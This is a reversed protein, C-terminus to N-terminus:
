PASARPPRACAAVLLWLALFGALAAAIRKPWHVTKDNVALLHITMPKGLETQLLQTFAHRLGRTPLNVRIPQVKALGLEQAQQLKTWQAEAASADYQLQLPQAGPPPPQPGAPQQAANSLSFANQALILNSGQARRLQEELQRAQPDGSEVFNGKARARNYDAMAERVKGSSLKQQASALESKLQKALVAKNESEKRSYDFLSFSAAEAVGAAARTMTGGFDSYRYDPPLFVEWRTNKLPLDLRPSVLDVPGRNQPFRNTGAYTLEVTLPADDSGSRQLPLLLKGERLSPRVAEGAVFASWVKAGPPLAVELHQRGHNRIALSMETMMQGDDAVVTTLDLREVLAQLVEAQEFRRAELALTYEPRLYRYALVTAEDSRGAWPPLDRTDLPKLEAASQETVQLPPRAVIALIGTEREVGAASIGRLDLRNTGAPRPLEWTVTLTHPGRIKSQFEVKWIEGAQDRRRINAGSIEVNRFAAPIKLRLEKVPANQIEYRALARGSVLSETLTLTNVIEARVWPDVPETAVALKWAAAPQPEAALFKYALVSGAGAPDSAAGPAAPVETLGDIASPGIAMGPEASVSVFGSLKQAGLPHVGVIPLLRPLESFTRLLDLRLAYNGTTREKLTLELFRQDAELREAWQLINTGTVAELRYDSPLALKLAFVGARKITYDIVSAVAVQEAGVRVSHRVVAEIQPRQPAVRTELTFAPKLFRFAHFVTEAKPGAARAFEEADVRTLEQLRELTLELEEESRLGLLGTERKVDLARPIEIRVVAPLAPLLSETQLTLRYDPAMGKLLDVVLVQGAAETKVEWTRISEGEVRLLKHGNPLRIRAQRMEGQTVQYDLSARADLVGGAFSVLTANHCIVNAAIEAARKVRPTWRLDVREAAGLLAQVRTQQGSTLRQCSIATPFEVDAEPQDITLALQGSLAPPVGFGLERKTVDGALKVLFKVQLVTQGPRALLAWVKGGERLLSAQGPRASFEQVAMDEGFLAIRQHPKNATVDFTAALQAVKDNVTGSYNASLIAAAPTPDTPAPSQANASLAGLGLALLALSALAPPIAPQPHAALAPSGPPKRPWYKWTLWAVAALGLVPALLILGLHLLRWALLLNGVSGLALALALALLFSSRGQRRWQWWGLLLGAVFGTLQLAMQAMQFTQLKMLSAKVSLPEDGANLAKTFTFLQGARPIEIHLSHVGAAMPAASPPAGPTVTAPPPQATANVEAPAPRAAQFQAQRVAALQQNQAAVAPSNRVIYGRRAIEAFRESSMQQVSGDALLVNRHGDVDTPSFAIVSSPDVEGESLGGGLYVFQQGSEPDILVKDTGLENMMEEFSTPFRDMNDLGFTKIAIGIQKLSNVASARQARAKGRALAPLLMAGLLALICFVGLVAFVGSRGRRVGAGILAVLLVVLVGGLALGAGAERVIEQYFGLVQRWADRLGYSAGRAVTMNGGFASLRFAPPAYLHWEAYTNPVDTQPAALQFRTPFLSWALSNTQAYIIDVAFAQDRNPGRPLPVMLWDNDREAKIPLRNVDCSWFSAGPPLKFRQFQKDNNKVMFSAQTLMEGAETLVTTLQTRDAVASLVPLEAFRKVEVELRYNAGTYQYALLVARTILARDAQALEAEDVRRLPDGPAKAALKLSTATTIAVSGTEREVGLAHIGGVTLTAGKPDFQYDYTVVLTYGGWAKDQLRITWLGDAKQEKRRINPGTFEVNKWTGPVAVDFEQVGQNVLGYRITASGGVIGDGITVLNFLDAVVRAALRETALSLKWDPQEATYALLEDARASLQSAPIERLGALEATKLRLGPASAAGIQATQRAAGLVRLPALRVQEPFSKLPQELQVDLKRTGLVRSAFSVRLVQNTETLKWDEVGEGRVDAVMFGPQPALELAYVGAKEVELTLAHGALLRTEELRATVRDAVKLVPEVRKLKLSLSLPRGNFRYAALAGAPANVQRLGSASDIEALTDETSITLAGAEREVELPQPPTLAVTSPMAEITQESYLTLQCEKEVPKIFEVTLLQPSNGPAPGPKLEWDRLQEGALRTLAQAAPLAITLSTLKGQLIEYRLQTVHKVVTPTIQASATTEVTVVAKRAVEAPGGVRSWRLAVTQDAGLFGKVRALGNTASSELATGSLLQVEMGNGQVQVEAIAAAPGKFSVQNWLETQSIKAVLELKLQYQGPKSAVLRYQNGAREVRLPVPLRPPLLALEGEFLPAAAEQHDLLEATLAVTFRAEADGLKGEYRVQRFVLGAAPLPGPGAAGASGPNAPAAWVIACLLVPAMMKSTLANKM